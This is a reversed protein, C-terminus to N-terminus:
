VHAGQAQSSLGFEFSIHLLQERADYAIRFLQVQAVM